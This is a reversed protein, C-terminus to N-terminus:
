DLASKPAIHPDDQTFIRRSPLPMHLVRWVRLVILLACTSIGAITAYWFGAAGDQPNQAEVIGLWYGLPLAILWYSIVMMLFPFRTEKFARLTFSGMIQVADLLIFFAALKILRTALGHIEADDTYMTIIIEPVTFLVAMTLLSLVVATGTGVWLALRIANPQAAGIAHGIRTSMATGAALMPIYFMDWINFAIQHAAIATDGLTAILLSIFSFVGVELFFTLGIPLGLSLIDKIATWSPSEFRIPPLYKALAKSQLVYFGILLLSLWMSIATAIGCGEAGLSPLGWKGYIFGYNLPINAIFGIVSATAFPKTIGLGQTHYRLAHFIGVAPLGLAVMKVYDHAKIQTGEALGLLDLIPNSFYCIPGVVLGLIMALWLSQPLQARIKDIRGAGFDQAIITSTAFLVGLVLLYLPLWINYGIAIAALDMPDFRAAMITDVVGTGMQATQAIFLPWAIKWQQSLEGLLSRLYPSKTM